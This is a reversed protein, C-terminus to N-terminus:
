ELDPLLQEQPLYERFYIVTDSAKIIDEAHQKHPLLLERHDNHLEEILSNILNIPKRLRIRLM